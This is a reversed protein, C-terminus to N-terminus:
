LGDSGLCGDLTTGTLSDHTLSGTAGCTGCEYGEFADDGNYSQATIRLDHSGCRECILTM